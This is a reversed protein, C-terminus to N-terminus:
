RAPTVFHSVLFRWWMWRQSRRREVNDETKTMKRAIDFSFLFGSDTLGRGGRWEM